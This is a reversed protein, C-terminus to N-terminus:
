LAVFFLTIRFFYLMFFACHSFFTVHFFYCSRFICFFLMGSTRSEIRLLQVSSKSHQVRSAPSQISSEPRQVRSAPSQVSSEPRPVRSVVDQISPEPGQVTSEPFHVRPEPHQFTSTLVKFNWVTLLNPFLPAIDIYDNQISCPSFDKTM